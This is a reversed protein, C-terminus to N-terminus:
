SLLKDGLAHGYWLIREQLYVSNYGVSCIGAENKRFTKEKSRKKWYIKGFQNKPINLLKSWFDVAKKARHYYHLHLRIRLKKEDIEYCDRLLTIFLLHLKPDVNAFDVRSSTKAGEAWYLISLLSKKFDLDLRSLSDIEQQIERKINEQRLLKKRRNAEAAFSRVETTWGGSSNKIFTTSRKGVWSFLTSKSVKLENMIVKYSNGDGRLLLARMKEEESWRKKM